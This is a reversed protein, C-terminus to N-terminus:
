LWFETPKQRQRGKPRLSLQKKRKAVLRVLSGNETNQGRRPRWAVKIRVRSHRKGTRRNQRVRLLFLCAPFLLGSKSNRKMIM